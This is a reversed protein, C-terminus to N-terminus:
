FALVHLLSAPLLVSASRVCSFTPSLMDQKGGGLCGAGPFVLAPRSSSPMGSILGSPLLLFLATALDVVLLGKLCGMAGVGSQRISEANGYAKQVSM